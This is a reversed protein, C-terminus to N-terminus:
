RGQAAGRPAPESQMLGIYFDLNGALHGRFALAGSASTWGYGRALADIGATQRTVATDSEAQTLEHGASPCDPLRLRRRTDEDLGACVTPWLEAADAAPGESATGTHAPRSPPTPVSSRPAMTPTSASASTPTEDRSPVFEISVSEPSRKRTPVMLIQALFLIILVHAAFSALALGTWRILPRVEGGARQTARGAM